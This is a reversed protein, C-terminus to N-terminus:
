RYVNARSVRSFLPGHERADTRVARPRVFFALASARANDPATRNM